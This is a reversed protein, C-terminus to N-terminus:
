ESKPVVPNKVRMIVITLIVAFVISIYGATKYGGLYSESLSFLLPAIASFFVIMSMNFGSIAGLHDRGFFRPHGVSSITSYTGNLIGIGIIEAYYAIPSVDLYTFSIACIFAGIVYVFLILKIRIYDSLYSSIMSIIIAIVTAPIFTKLAEIETYGAQKYISVINFNFGSVFFGFFTTSLAVGWFATTRKAEKLTFQYRKKYEGNECVHNEGDPILGFKEPNDRYFCLAFITFLLLSAGLVQYAGDWNYHEIDIAFILPAISFGISVFIASIANAFGRKQDFWKMIMTRSVMTMMGQGSFRLLFFILSMIIIVIALRDVHHFLSAFIDIIQPSISILFCSTSLLLSAFIILIRAGKKDFMKGVKTLFMSSGITGIMYATTLNNRSINLAQLIHDTFVSVGSTQGPLSFLIGITGVAVIIWGYFFTTKTPNIPFKDFKNM